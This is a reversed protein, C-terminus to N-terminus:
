LQVPPICVGGCNSVEEELGVDPVLASDAHDPLVHAVETIEETEEVDEDKTNEKKEEESDSMQVSSPTKVSVPTTTVNLVGM